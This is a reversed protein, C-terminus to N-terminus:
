SAQRRQIAYQFATPASRSGHNSRIQTHRGLRLIMGHLASRNFSGRCRTALVDRIPKAFLSAAFRERTRLQISQTGIRSGAANALKENKPNVPKRTGANAVREFNDLLQARM